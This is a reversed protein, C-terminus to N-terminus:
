GALCYFADRATGGGNERRCPAPCWCFSETANVVCVRRLFVSHIRGHGGSRVARRRAPARDDPVPDLVGPARRHPAGPDGPRRGPLGTGTPSASCPTPMCSSTGPRCSTSCRWGPLPTRYCRVTLVVVADPGCSRRSLGAASHGSPSSARGAGGGAATGSAPMRAARLRGTVAADPARRRRGRARRRHRARRRRRAPGTGRV